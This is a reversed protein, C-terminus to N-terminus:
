EAGPASQVFHYFTEGQKIMHLDSRAYSRLQEPNKKNLQIGRALQSNAQQLQTLQVQKRALTDRLADYSFVGGSAFWLQYQLSLFVVGVLFGLGSKALVRM